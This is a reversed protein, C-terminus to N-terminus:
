FKLRKEIAQRLYTGAFWAAYGARIRLGQWGWITLFGTKKRPARLVQGFFDAYKEGANRISYLEVAVAQGAKASLREIAAIVDETGTFSEGSSGAIEPHGGSRRVAAPLGCALAEILSNSCPDDQSATIYLDQRRLIEALERSAVPAVQKINKFKVPSNGVFTMEFRSFDLAEDLYQYVDFGKRWNASWSTAVLRKRSAAPKAPAPHFISDDCGNIAVTELERPALGLRYCQQRSWETQFLSADAFHANLRHILRDIQKDRGGRVVSIPGDLRHVVRKGAARLRRLLPLIRINDFPFSNILILDAAWPDDTYHGHELLYKRLAKLFQNGGGTPGDKMEALIHARWNNM